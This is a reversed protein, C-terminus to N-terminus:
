FNFYSNIVYGSNHQFHNKGDVLRGLQLIQNLYGAEIKLKPNFKIGALAGIRNQDFINQNVNRGFGIMIEDYISLYPTSQVTGLSHIPIDMRLMYRVRNLYVWEDAKIAKPDLNRGVWRQELMFRHSIDAKEIPNKLLVMQYTRHEPFRIGNAQIPVIGYNHTDAFAYGARFTVQPHVVYNVGMRYLNQQADDIFSVRRLQAEGHFSWKETIAYNLFFAHWGIQNSETARNNQAVAAHCQIVLLLLGFVLM